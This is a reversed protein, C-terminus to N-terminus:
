RIIFKFPWEKITLKAYLLPCVIATNRLRKQSHCMPKVACGTAAMMLINYKHRHKHWPVLYCSLTVKDGPIIFMLTHCDSFVLTSKNSKSMNTDKLYYKINAKITLFIKFYDLILWPYSGGPIWSFWSSWSTHLFLHPIELDWPRIRPGWNGRLAL